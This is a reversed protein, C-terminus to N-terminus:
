FLNYVWEEKIHFLVAFVVRLVYTGCFLLLMLKISKEEKMSQKGFVKRMHSLSLLTTASLVIALTIFTTMYFFEFYEWNAIVNETFNGVRLAIIVAIVAPFLIILITFLVTVISEMRSTKALESDNIQDGQRERHKVYSDLRIYLVAYNLIQCLGVSCSFSAPWCLFIV